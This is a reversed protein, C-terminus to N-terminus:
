WLPCPLGGAGTKIRACKRNRRAYDPSVARCGSRRMGKPVSALSWSSFAFYFMFFTFVDILLTIADIRFGVNWHYFYNALSLLIIFFPGVSTSLFRDKSKNEQSSSKADSKDPEAM